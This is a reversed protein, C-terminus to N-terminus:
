VLPSKQQALIDQNRAEQAKTHPAWFNPRSAVRAGLSPSCEIKDKAWQIVAESVCCSFDDQHSYNSSGTLNRKKEKEKTPRHSLQGGSIRIAADIMKSYVPSNGLHHTYDSSTTLFDVEKQSSFWCKIREHLNDASTSFGYVRPARGLAYDKGVMYGMTFITASHAAVGRHPTLNFIGMRATRMLDTNTKYILERLHPNNGNELASEPMFSFNKHAEIPTVVVIDKAKDKIMEQAHAFHTEVNPLLVEPGALYTANPNEVIQTSDHNQVQNEMLFYNKAGSIAQAFVFINSYIENQPITMSFIKPTLVRSGTAFSVGELMPDNYSDPGPEDIAKSPDKIGMNEVIMRNRDCSVARSKQASSCFLRETFEGGNWKRVREYLTQSVNTFSFVPKGHAAMFGLQFIVDADPEVGLCPTLNAILLKCQQMANCIADFTKTSTAEPSSAAEVTSIVDVAFIATFGAASAELRMAEVTTKTIIKPAAIFIKDKM